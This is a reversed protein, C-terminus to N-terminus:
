HFYMSLKKAEAVTSSLIMLKMHKLHRFGMVAKFFGMFMDYPFLREHADDLIVVSCSALDIQRYILDSDFFFSETMYRIMTEITCCDQGPIVYGLRHGLDM